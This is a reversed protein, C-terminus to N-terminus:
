DFFLERSQNYVFQFLQSEIPFCFMYYPTSEHKPFYVYGSIVKGPPVSCTRFIEEEVVEKEESIMEMESSIMKDQSIYQDATGVTQFIADAIYVPNDTAIFGATNYLINVGAQIIGFFSNMNKAGKREEISKDYFMMVKDPHVAMWPANPAAHANASDLVVYYFDSPLISLTDSTTNHVVFDFVLNEGQIGDYGLEVGIQESELAIYERGMAYHGEPAEPTIQTVVRPATCSFLFLSIVPLYYINKM